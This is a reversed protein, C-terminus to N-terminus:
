FHRLQTANKNKSAFSAIGTACSQRPNLPHEESRLGANPDRTLRGQESAPTRARALPGRPADGSLSSSFGPREPVRRSDRPARVAHLNFRVPAEVRLDYGGGCWGFISGTRGVPTRWFQLDSACVYSSWDSIRM